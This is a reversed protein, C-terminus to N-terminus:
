FASHWTDCKGGTLAMTKISIVVSKGPDASARISIPLAYTQDAGISSALEVEAGHFAVDIITWAAKLKRGHFFSLKCTVGPGATSASIIFHTDSFLCTGKGAVPEAPFTFGKERAKKISDLGKIECVPAPAPAPAAPAPGSPASPSPRPQAALPSWALMVSWTVLVVVRGLPRLSPRSM